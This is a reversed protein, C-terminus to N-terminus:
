DSQARSAKTTLCRFSGHGDPEGEGSVHATHYRQMYLAGEAGRVDVATSEVAHRTLNAAATAAFADVVSLEELAHDLATARSRKLADRLFRVARRFTHLFVPLLHEGEDFVEDFHAPDVSVYSLLEWNDACGGSNIDRFLFELVKTAFARSEPTLPARSREGRRPRSLEDLLASYTFPEPYGPVRLMLGDGAASDEHRLASTDFTM